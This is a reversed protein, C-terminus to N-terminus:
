LATETVTTPPPVVTDTSASGFTNDTATDATTGAQVGPEDEAVAIATDLLKEIAADYDGSTSPESVATEEQIVNPLPLGLQGAGGAADEQAKVADQKKITQRLSKADKTLRFYEQFRKTTTLIPSRGEEKKLILERALLEKIHDYAGAGRVRVIESQMVPQKIAIASLTRLLAASMEMPLFEEIISSYEDKVQFMYGNDQAIELGGGREEYDHILELLTQRVIQVDANVIRAIAAAHIPRDTLFLVAEIKAKVSM